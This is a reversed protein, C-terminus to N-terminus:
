KKTGMLVMSGYEIPITEGKLKRHAIEYGSLKRTEIKSPKVWRFAWGKKEYKAGLKRAPKYGVILM